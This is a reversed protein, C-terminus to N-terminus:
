HMLVRIMVIFFVVHLTFGFGTPKGNKSTSVGVYNGLRNSFLFSLPGFAIVALLGLIAALIWKEQPTLPKKTDEESQTSM